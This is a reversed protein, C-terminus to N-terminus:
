TTPTNDKSFSGSGNLLRGDRGAELYSAFPGSSNSARRPPRPSTTCDEDSCSPHAHGSDPTEQQTQPMSTNSGSRLMQAHLSEHCDHYTLAPSDRGKGIGCEDLLGRGPAHTPTADDDDDDDDVLLLSGNEMVHHQTAERMECTVDLIPPGEHHGSSTSSGATTTSSCALLEGGGGGVDVGAEVHPHSPDGSENAGSSEGNVGATLENAGSSVENVGEPSVVVKSVGEPSAQNGAQGDGVTAESSGTSEVVTKCQKQKDLQQVKVEEELRQM